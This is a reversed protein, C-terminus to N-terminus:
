SETGLRPSADTTTDSMGPMKPLSHIWQPPGSGNQHSRARSL